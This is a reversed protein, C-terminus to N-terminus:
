ILWHFCNIFIKIYIWTNSGGRSGYNWSVCPVASRPFEEHLQVCWPVLKKKRSDGSWYRSNLWVNDCVSLWVKQCVFEETGDGDLLKRDNDPLTIYIFTSKSQRLCNSKPNIWTAQVCCLRSRSASCNFGFATMATPHKEAYIFCLWLVKM